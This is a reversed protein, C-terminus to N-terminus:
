PLILGGGGEGGGGETGPLILGIDSRPKPSEPRERGAEDFAARRVHFRLWAVTLDIARPDARFRHLLAGASAWGRADAERDRRHLIWARDLLRAVLGAREDDGLGDTAFARFVEGEREAVQAPSLVLPGRSAAELRGVLRENPGRELVVPLDSGDIREFLRRAESAIADLGDPALGLAPHEAPEIGGALDPLRMALDARAEAASDGATSPPRRLAARIRELVHGPPAIAV